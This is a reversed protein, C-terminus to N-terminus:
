SDSYKAVRALDADIQSFDYQGLKPELDRWYYVTSMGTFYPDPLYSEVLEGGGPSLVLHEAALLANVPFCLLLVLLTFNKKVYKKM